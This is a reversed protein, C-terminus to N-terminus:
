NSQLIKNTKKKMNFSFKERKLTFNKMSEKSTNGINLEKSIRNSALNLFFSHTLFSSFDSTEQDFYEHIDDKNPGYLTWQIEV